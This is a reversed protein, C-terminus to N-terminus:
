IIGKKEKRKWNYAGCLTILVCIRIFIWVIFSGSNAGSAISGPIGLLFDILELASIIIGSILALTTWSKFKITTILLFIFPIFYILSAIGSVLHSEYEKYLSFYNVATKFILLFLLVYLGGRGHNIHTEPSAITHQVPKGDVEIGIGSPIGTFSTILPKKYLWATIKLPTTGSNVTYDFKTNLQDISGLANENHTLELVPKNGPFYHAKFVDNNVEFSYTVKKIGKEKSVEAKILNM